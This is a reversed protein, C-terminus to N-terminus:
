SDTATENTKSNSKQDNIGLTADIVRKLQEWGTSDIHAAIHLTEGTRKINFDNLISVNVLPPEELTRSLAPTVSPRDLTTVNGVMNDEKDQILPRELEQITAHDTIKAYSM